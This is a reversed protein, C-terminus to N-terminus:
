EQDKKFKNLIFCWYLVALAGESIILMCASGTLGYSPILSVGAIFMIALSTIDIKAKVSAMNKTLLLSGGLTRIAYIPITIVLIKLLYEAASFGEGLLIILISPCTIIFLSAILGYASFAVLLNITERKIIKNNSFFSPTAANIIAELPQMIVNILRTAISYIGANEPTSFKLTLTKDFSGIATQTLSNISFLMGISINEIHTNADKKIPKLTAVTIYIVFTSALGSM